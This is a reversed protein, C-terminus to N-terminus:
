GHGSRRRSGSGARNCPDASQRGGNRPCVQGAVETIPTGLGTFGNLVAVRAQFEAVLRDFDRASLRQGLFKVRHMGTETRSRRHHGSSGRWVTRGVRKSIRLIQNRALGGPTDPKWPKANRRPPIIAAAGRAANADHGKRSDFADATLTALHQDPPIQDLPEPLMPADGPTAPPSTRPGSKAPNRTSGSSFRAGTAGCAAATSAPTRNGKARSRSGGEGTREFRHCEGARHRVLLHLRGDSGRLPIHVKLAKQRRGSTGFGPVARDPGILRLLSGAIGTTQRPAMGISVKMTLCTQTATDRYHCQRGRQGTPAPKCTMAPDLWIALSDRRRLPNNCRPWNRTKCTPPTPRSM